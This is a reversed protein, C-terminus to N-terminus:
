GPANGAAAGVVAAGYSAALRKAVAEDVRDPAYQLLARLGARHPIATLELDFRGAIDPPLVEAALGGPTAPAASLDPLLQFVVGGLRGWGTADAAAPLEYYGVGQNAIAENVTHRTRRVLAGLSDAPLLRTRLILMTAFFGVSRMVEPRTRNAFPAAVALDLQGTEQRLAAYFLALLVTFLTTQERRALAHLAETRGRDLDIHITRNGADAPAAAVPPLAVPSAGDLRDQWYRREGALREATTEHRQWRVFHRYQWGVRPLPTSATLLHLLDEALVRCSWADTALHHMNLCVVRDRDGLTWATVRLPSRSPDVPDTCERRIRRALEDEGAIEVWAVPVPGPEHILQTLLGGRRALTTRLTEHRIVLQHVAGAIRDRELEGRLRVLLPYNLQGRRGGGREILWLMRQGVSAAELRRAPAAELRRAPAAEEGAPM